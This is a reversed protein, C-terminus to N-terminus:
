HFLATLSPLILYYSLYDSLYSSPHSCIVLCIIPLYSTPYSPRYSPPYSPPYRALYCALYELSILKMKKFNFDFPFFYCRKLYFNRFFLLLYIAKKKNKKKKVLNSCIDLTPHLSRWVHHCNLVNSGIIRITELDKKSEGM